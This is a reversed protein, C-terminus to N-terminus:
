SCRKKCFVEPPQNELENKDFLSSLRTAAMTPLKVVQIPTTVILQSVCAFNKHLGSYICVKEPCSKNSNTQLTLKKNMLTKQCVKQSKSKGKNSCAISKKDRLMVFISM